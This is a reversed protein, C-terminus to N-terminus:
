RRLKSYGSRTELSTFAGALTIYADQNSPDLEVAKRAANLAEAPANTRALWQALQTWLAPTNPDLAIAERLEAIAEPLTGGRALLQAVAFHHYARAQPNAAKPRAVQETPEEAAEQTSRPTATACGGLLLLAAALRWRTM